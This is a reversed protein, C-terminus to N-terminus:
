QGTGNQVPRPQVPAVVPPVGNVQVNRAAESACAQLAAQTAPDVVGNRLNANTAASQLQDCPDAFAQCSAAGLTAAVILNRWM